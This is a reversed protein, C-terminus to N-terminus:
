KSTITITGTFQTFASKAFETSHHGEGSEYPSKIAVGEFVDDIHGDGIVLVLQGNSAIVYNGQFLIDKPKEEQQKNVEVTIM